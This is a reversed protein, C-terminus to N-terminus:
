VPMEIQYKEIKRQLTRRPIRLQRAAKSKNGHHQHLIDTIMRKEFEDLLPRLGQEASTM